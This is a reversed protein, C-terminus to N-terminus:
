SNWASRSPSSGGRSNKALSPGSANKGPRPASTSSKKVTAGSPSRSAPTLLRSASSWTTFRRTSWLNKVTISTGPSGSSPGNELVKGGEIRVRAAVEDEARRTKLEVQSVAAISALAEGRFGLTRIRELDEYVAIKSTAHRDFAALADEPGMGAGDDVVQISSTGGDAIVVTVSRAGADISNELLEKVASAPRQVVEGAAIKNALLEPLVRITRDSM